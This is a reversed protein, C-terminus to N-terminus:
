RHARARAAAVPPRYHDRDRVVCGAPLHARMLETCYSCGVCCRRPDLRGERALDAPAEPYAFAGRGIGIASAWGRALVGSGVLPWFQRLWSYGTGVVPLTPAHRQIDGALRILRAVGVLPHEPPPPGGGAARDYPRGIHALHAPIGATVNLLGCGAAALRAVLDHPESLDEIGPPDPSVGFGYPFPVGDTANLRVAAPIGAEHRTRSVVEVLFRSRNDFNGGYRSRDRTRAGLLESVLYGHCAKVDVADFGADRALIAAEVFRDALGDLEADTWASTAEGPADLHPNVSAIRRPAGPARWSYRGSHTLQLVLVPHHGAGFVSKASDLTAAALARFAGATKRTLLLQHPNARGEDVVATAEFWILGSGGAAFRRYRAFTLDGPAGDPGGDCGEMPQVVLRNPAPRPALSLPEFLRACDDSIPLELGLRVAAQRLAESTRFRFPAHRRVDLADAPSM